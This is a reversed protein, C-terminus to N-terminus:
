VGVGRKEKAAKNYLRWEYELRIKIEEQEDSLQSWYRVHSPTSSWSFHGSIGADGAIDTIHTSEMWEVLADHRALFQITVHWYLQSFEEEEDRTM